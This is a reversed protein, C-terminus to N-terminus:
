LEEECFSDMDDALNELDNCIDHMRETFDATCRLSRKERELMKVVQYLVPDQIERWGPERQMASKCEAYTKKYKAYYDWSHVAQIEGDADYFFVSFEPFTSRAEEETETM